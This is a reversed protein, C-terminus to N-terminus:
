AWVDGVAGVSANYSPLVLSDREAVIDVPARLSFTATNSVALRFHITYMRSMLCSHFTIIFNEPPLWLPVLLTATYCGTNDQSWQPTPINLTFSPFVTDEFNLPRGLLDKKKTPIDDHFTTTFLTTGTMQGRLSKLNPLTVNSSDTPTYRLFLRIARSVTGYPDRLPLLFAKPQELTVALMGQPSKSRGENVPKEQQLCFEDGFKDLNLPPQEELAPKVRVKFKRVFITEQKDCVLSMRNIRIQVSYIIKCAIPAFDNKLKGGLGSVTADGFSPPLQLHAAKVLQSTASHQCSSPPLYDSVDFCFSFGVKQGKKLVRPDPLASDLVKHTINQFQHCAKTPHAYRVHTSQDGIFSIQIDDFRIDSQPVLSIVGELKDGTTFSPVYSLNLRNRNWLQISASIAHGLDITKDM